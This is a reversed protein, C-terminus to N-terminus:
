RGLRRSRRRLREAVGIAAMGALWVAVAGLVFGAGQVASALLIDLWAM